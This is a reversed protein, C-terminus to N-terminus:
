LPKQTEFIDKISCVNTKVQTTLKKEYLWYQLLNRNVTASSADFIGITKEPHQQTLTQIKDIISDLLQILSSHQAHSTHYVAVDEYTYIHNRYTPLKIDLPSEKIESVVHQKTSTQIFEKSTLQYLWHKIKNANSIQTEIRMPTLLCYTICNSYIEGYQCTIVHLSDLQNIITNYVQKSKSTILAYKMDILEKLLTSIGITSM